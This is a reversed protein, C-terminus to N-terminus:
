GAVGHAELTRHVLAQLREVIEDRDDDALEMEDLLHSVLDACEPCLGNWGDESDWKASCLECTQTSAEMTTAASAISSGEVKAVSGPDKVSVAERREAHRQQSHELQQPALPRLGDRNTALHPVRFRECLDCYRLLLDSFVAPWRAGTDMETFLVRLGVYSDLSNATINKNAISKLAAEILVRADPPTLVVVQPVTDSLKTARELVSDDADAVLYAYDNIRIVREEFYLRLAGEHADGWM